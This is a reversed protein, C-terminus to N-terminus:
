GTREMAVHFVEDVSSITAESSMKWCLRHLHVYLPFHVNISIIEAPNTQHPNHFFFFFHDLQQFYQFIVTKGTKDSYTVIQAAYM